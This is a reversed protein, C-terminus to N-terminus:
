EDHNNSMKNIEVERGFTYKMNRIHRCSIVLFLIIIKLPNSHSFSDHKKYLYYVM